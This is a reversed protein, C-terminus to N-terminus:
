WTEFVQFDCIPVNSTEGGWGWLSNCTTILDKPEMSRLKIFDIERKYYIYTYLICITSNHIYFVIIYLM